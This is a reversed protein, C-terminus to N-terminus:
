PTDKQSRKRQRVAYAPDARLKRKYERNYERQRELYAPDKRLKRNYERQRERQRELYAPDTRLKRKYERQRERQRELYDPDSRLKRKYERQRERQRELYNPDSRLKRQYERQREIYAPDKRLERQRKRSLERKREAYDPDNQYQKRQRKKQREAYDPDNQYRNKQRKAYDPNDQYRERSRKKKGEAYDPNNKYRERNHEIQLNCSEDSPDVGAQALDGSVPLSQSISQSLGLRSQDSFRENDPTYTRPPANNQLKRRVTYDIVQDIKTNRNVIVVPRKEFRPDDFPNHFTLKAQQLHNKTTEDTRMACLVADTEEVDRSFAQASTGSESFLTDQFYLFRDSASNSQTSFISTDM